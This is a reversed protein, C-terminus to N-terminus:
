VPQVEAQVEKDAESVEDVEKQYEDWWEDPITLLKSNPFWSEVQKGYTENWSVCFDKFATVGVGPISDYASEHHEQYELANLLVDEGDVSLHSVDCAWLTQRRATEMDCVNEDKIAEWAEGVDPYYEDKEDWFVPGDYDSASLRKADAIRKAREEGRSKASCSECKTRGPKCVEGCEDCPRGGCHYKAYGEEVGCFKGCEGCCYFATVGDDARVLVVPDKM